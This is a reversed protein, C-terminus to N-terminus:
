VVNFYNLYQNTIWSDDSGSAVRVTGSKNGSNPLQAVLTTEPKKTKSSVLQNNRKAAANSIRDSDTRTKKELSHYTTDTKGISKFFETIDKYTTTIAEKVNSVADGIQSMAGGTQVHLHNYHGEKRWIVTYGAESLKKALMDMRAGAAPDNAEVIGTGINVDLAKDAGHAWGKHKGKVGGFQSQESVRFGESQLWRGLGVIDDKPIGGTPAPAKNAQEKPKYQPLSNNKKIAKSWDANSSKVPNQMPASTQAKAKPKTILMNPKNKTFAKANAAPASSAMVKTAVNKKIILNSQPKSSALGASWNPEKPANSLGDQQRNKNDITPESDNLFHLTKLIYGAFTSLGSSMDTIEKIIGKTLNLIPDYQTAILAIVSAMMAKNSNEPVIDSNASKSNDTSSEIINERRNRNEILMQMKKSQMQQELISNIIAIQGIMDTIANNLKPNMMVDSKKSTMNTVKNVVNFFINKFNEANEKSKIKDRPPSITNHLLLISEEAKEGTKKNVWFGDKYIFERGDRTKLNNEM